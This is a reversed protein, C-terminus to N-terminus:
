PHKAGGGLRMRLDIRMGALIAGIGQREHRLVPEGPSALADAIPARYWPFLTAPLARPDFWGVDLTESSPRPEGSLHRCAYIHATHPRFGSRVYDGVRREVEVCVGTEEFIERRVAGPGSEGPLASGGPLEWGRLDRRVGLLIGRSGFVVGQYVQLPERESLRPGVLGWWAIRLYSPLIGGLRRM